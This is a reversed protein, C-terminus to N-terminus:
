LKNSINKDKKITKNSRSLNSSKENILKTDNAQTSFASLSSLGKTILSIISNGQIAWTEQQKKPNIVGFNIRHVTQKEKDIEGSAIKIDLGGRKNTTTILSIDFNIEDNIEYESPLGENIELLTKQIFDKISDNM